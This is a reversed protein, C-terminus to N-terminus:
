NEKSMHVVRTGTSQDPIQRDDITRANAGSASAWPLVLTRAILRARREGRGRELKRLLDSVRRHLVM